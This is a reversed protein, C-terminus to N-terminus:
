SSAGRRRKSGCLRHLRSLEPFWRQRRRLPLVPLLPPALAPTQAPPDAVECLLSRAHPGETEAEQEDSFPGTPGGPCDQGAAPDTAPPTRPVPLHGWGLLRSHRRLAGWVRGTPVPRQQPGKAAPAPLLAKELRHRPWPVLDPTLPRPDPGSRCHTHGRTVTRPRSQARHKQRRKGQFAVLNPRAQGSTRPDQVPRDHDRGGEARGPWTLWRAPQQTQRTGERHSQLLAPQDTAELSRPRPAPSAHTAEPCTLSQPFARPGDPSLSVPGPPVPDPVAGQRTTHCTVSGGAHQDRLWRRSPPLTGEPRCTCGAGIGVEWQRPCSAPPPPAEGERTQSARRRPPPLPVKSDRRSSLIAPTLGLSTEELVMHEFGM